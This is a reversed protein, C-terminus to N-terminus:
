ARAVTRCGSAQVATGLPLLARTVETRVLARDTIEITEGAEVRRLLASANQRLERIGVRVM